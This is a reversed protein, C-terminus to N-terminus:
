NLEPQWVHVGDKESGLKVEMMWVFSHKKGQM